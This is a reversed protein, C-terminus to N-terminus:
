ASGAPSTRAEAGPSGVFAARAAHRQASCSGAAESSKWHSLDRALLAELGEVEPRFVEYLRRLTEQSIEPFPRGGGIFLGILRSNKVASVLKELRRAKCWDAIATGAWTALYSRPVTMTGSSYVRGLQAPTLVFRPIGVFRALRDMFSQPDRRLDDYFTILIQDRPFIRRWERLHTAYRGSDMLEPDRELAQEFTWSFRGYALKARYMSVVRQVPNRFIFVLRAHPITGALHERAQPSAFYTPAVEGMPRGAPSAPFHRSYWKLGRAFHVDFFRTEKNFSPLSVHQSLVTHLWSTGTRPPGAVFFSPLRMPDTM